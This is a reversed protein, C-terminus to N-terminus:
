FWNMLGEYKPKRPISCGYGLLFVQIASRGWITFKYKLPLNAKSHQNYM